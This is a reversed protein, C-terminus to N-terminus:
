VRASIINPPHPQLNLGIAAVAFYVADVGLAAELFRDLIGGFDM